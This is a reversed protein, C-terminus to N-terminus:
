EMEPPLDADDFQRTQPMWRGNPQLANVDVQLKRGAIERLALVAEKNEEDNGILPQSGALIQKTREATILVLLFRNPIVQLCDEVTVRAM